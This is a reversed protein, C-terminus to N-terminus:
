EGLISSRGEAGTQASLRVTAELSGKEHAEQRPVRYFSTLVFYAQFLVLEPLHVSLRGTEVKEFFGYVGRFEPDISEPTEVLYRVIVNTDIPIDAM